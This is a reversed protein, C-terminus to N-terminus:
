GTGHNVRPIEPCSLDVWIACFEGSDVKNAGWRTGGFWCGFLRWYSLSSLTGSVKRKDTSNRQLPLSLVHPLNLQTLYPLTLSSRRCLRQWNTVHVGCKLNKHEKHAWCSLNMKNPSSTFWRFLNSYSKNFRGKTSTNEALIIGWSVNWLNPWLIANHLNSRWSKWKSRIATHVSHTPSASLGPSTVICLQTKEDTCQIMMM